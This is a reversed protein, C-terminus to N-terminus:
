LLNISITWAVALVISDNFLNLRGAPTSMLILADVLYNKEMQSLKHACAARTLQSPQLLGTRHAGAKWVKLIWGAVSTNEPERLCGVM